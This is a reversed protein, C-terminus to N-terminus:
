MDAVSRLSTTCSKATAASVMQLVNVTSRLYNEIVDQHCTKVPHTFGTKSRSIGPMRVPTWSPPAPLSASTELPQPDSPACRLFAFWFSRTYPAHIVFRERDSVPCSKASSRADFGRVPRTRACRPTRLAPRHMSPPPPTEAFFGPLFATPVPLSGCILQAQPSDCSYQYKRRRGKKRRTCRPSSHPPPAHCQRAAAPPRPVSPLALAERPM